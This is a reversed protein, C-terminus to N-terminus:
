DYWIANMGFGPEPVRVRAVRTLSEDQWRYVELWGQEDDTLALWEDSWDSPAVANSHGGSTPTPRLLIQREVRGDAEALELATLYGTKDASNARTSAFLYRGSSSVACVDGRYMTWRDREPIDPPILPFHRGTYTIMGTGNDRGNNDVAYECIRNGKEMLAYLHAGSPHMAVWRPHDRADPADVGGVLEVEPRSPDPRRHVWLKNASLDASYLFREGDDDDDDDGDDSGRAPSFVMGHVGSDPQYPYHQAAAPGVLAGTTPDAAFVSGHGAHRYFPNCYVAHPPRRAALLFIARTNSKWFDMM